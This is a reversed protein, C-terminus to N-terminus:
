RILIAALWELRRNVERRLEMAVLVAIELRHNHNVSAAAGKHRLHPVNLLKSHMQADHGVVLDLDRLVQDHRVITISVRHVNWGENNSPLICLCDLLLELISGVSTYVDLSFQLDDM